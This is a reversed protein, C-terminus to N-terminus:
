SPKDFGIKTGKSKYKIELCRPLSSHLEIGAYLDIPVGVGFSVTNKSQAEGNQYYSCFVIQGSRVCDQLNIDSVLYEKGLRDKLLMHNSKFEKGKFAIMQENVNNYINKLSFTSDSM